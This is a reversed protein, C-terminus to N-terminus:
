NLVRLIFIMCYFYVPFIFFLFKLLIFYIVSSFFNLFLFGRVQMYKTEKTKKPIFLSRKKKGAVIVTLSIIARTLFSAVRARKKRKKKKKKGEPTFSAYESGTRTTGRGIRFGSHDTWTRNQLIFARDSLRGEGGGWFFPVL